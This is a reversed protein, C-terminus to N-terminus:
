ESYTVPDYVYKLGMNAEFLEEIGTNLTSEDKSNMRLSIRCLCIEAM